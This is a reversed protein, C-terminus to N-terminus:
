SYSLTLIILMLLIMVQMIMSCQGMETNIGAVVNRIQQDLLNHGSLLYDIAAPLDEDQSIAILRRIEAIGDEVDQMIM